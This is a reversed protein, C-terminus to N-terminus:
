KGKYRIKISSGNPNQIELTPLGDTCLAEGQSVIKAYKIRRKMMNTILLMLLDM